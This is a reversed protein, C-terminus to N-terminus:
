FGRSMNWSVPTTNWSGGDDDGFYADPKEYQFIDAEEDKKMAAMMANGKKMAEVKFELFSKYLPDNTM